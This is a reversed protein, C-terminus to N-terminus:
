IKQILAVAHAAVGEERGIYGLSETTTAKVSILSQPVSMAKALESKMRPIFPSIRPKQLVVTTDVNIITYSEKQLFGTVKKLLIKSDINKYEPSKDPFHM